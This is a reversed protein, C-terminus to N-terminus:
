ISPIQNLLKKIIKSDISEKDSKDFISLLFVTSQKIHLYTLVRAGGSKGKSKSSITMRIKYCNNGLSIGKAPNAELEKILLSFDNKISPYKKALKKLDKKFNPISIINYSM